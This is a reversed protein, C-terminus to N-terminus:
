PKCQWQKWGGDREVVRWTMVTALVPDFRHVPDVPFGWYEAEWRWTGWLYQFVGGATSEPNRATPKLSSECMAVEVAADPSTVPHGDFVFEIYPRINAQCEEFTDCPQRATMALVWAVVLEGLM